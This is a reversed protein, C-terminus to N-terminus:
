TLKGVGKILGPVITATGGGPPVPLQGYELAIQVFSNEDIEQMHGDIISSVFNMVNNPQGYMPGTQIGNKELLLGINVLARDQSYGPLTQSFLLLLGPIRQKMGIRLSSFLKVIISYLANCNDFKLNLLNIKILNILSKIIKLYRSQSKVLIKSVLTIIINVIKPKILIWFQQIYLWYADKLINFFLKVSKAM